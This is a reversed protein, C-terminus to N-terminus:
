RKIVPESRCARDVRKLLTPVRFRGSMTAVLKKAIDIEIGVSTVYLPNDSGGRYVAFFDSINKFPRKAVGIVNVRGKLADYLHKGLGANGVGDLYVFGDVVICDPRINHDELLKLICPLERKYFQGPEYKEINSVTSMFIECPYDDEWNEFLVGAVFAKQCKYHVDVALITLDSLRYFPPLRERLVAEAKNDPVQRVFTRRRARRRADAAGQLRKCNPPKFPM